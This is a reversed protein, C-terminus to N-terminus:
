EIPSPRSRVANRRHHIGVLPPVSFKYDLISHMFVQFLQARSRCTFKRMGQSLDFWVQNLSLCAAGRNSMITANPGEKFAAKMQESEEPGHYPVLTIAM